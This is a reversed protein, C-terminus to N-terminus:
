RFDPYSAQAVHTHRPRFAPSAPVAPRDHFAPGAALRPRQRLPLRHNRSLASSLGCATKASRRMQPWAVRFGLAGPAALPPCRRL